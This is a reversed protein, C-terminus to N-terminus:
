IIYKEKLKEVVLKAAERADLEFVKGAAKAGKTFTAKVRTPSGRLGMRESALDIKDANWVEIKKSHYADFIGKPSLDRP